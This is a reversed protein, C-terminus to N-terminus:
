IYSAVIIPGLLIPFFVLSVLILEGVASLFSHSGKLLLWFLPALLVLYTLMTRQVYYKLRDLFNKIYGQKLLSNKLGAVFNIRITSVFTTLNSFDSLREIVVAEHDKLLMPQQQTRTLLNVGTDKTYDIKIFGRQELDVLTAVIEARDIRSDFLYGIEAPSLGDPPDYEAITDSLLRVKRHALRSVNAVLFMILSLPVAIIVFIAVLAPFGDLSM